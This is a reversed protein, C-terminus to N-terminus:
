VAFQEVHPVIGVIAITCNMKESAHQRTRLMSARPQMAQPRGEKNSM